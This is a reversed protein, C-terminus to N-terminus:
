FQKAWLELAARREELFDRRLYARETDSGVEHSLCREATDRDIGAGPAWDRFTSRIGHATTARGLIGILKLRPCDLAVMGGRLGRFLLGSRQGMAVAELGLTSLPVRRAGRDVKQAAGPVTWVDASIQEATAQRAESVRCVTAIVLLLCGSVPSPHARCYAVVQRLEDLTPADHHEVKQVRSRPPLAFALNSRWAAPNDQRFRRMIAWDFISALRQQLRKASEPKTDWIPRLVKLVDDRTVEDIRLRGLIPLADNRLSNRWQEASRPNRWHKAREIEALADRAVDAFTPLAAKKQAPETETAILAAAKAKAQKLTMLSAPGLSREIAKKGVMWRVVYLETGAKTKSTYLNPAVRVRRRTQDM